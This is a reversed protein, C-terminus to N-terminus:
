KGCSTWDFKPPSSMRRISRFWTTGVDLADLARCMLRARPEPEPEVFQFKRSNYLVPLIAVKSPAELGRTVPPPNDPTRM